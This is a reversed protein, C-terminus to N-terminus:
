KENKKLFENSILVIVGISIFIDAVNFTFWHFNNYHIDIFDPVSKYYFRDFLNGIAGGIISALCYKEINKSKSALFILFLIIMLIFLSLFNYSLNNKLSLMGFAIGENWVLILNIYKSLYLEISNIDKSFHLVLLKTIRDILFTIIIIFFFIKKHKLM